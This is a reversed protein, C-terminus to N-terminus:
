VIKCQSLLKQFKSSLASAEFKDLYLSEQYNKFTISLYVKKEKTVIKAIFVDLNYLKDVDLKNNSFSNLITTLDIMQFVNKIVRYHKNETKCLFELSSFKVIIEDREKRTDKDKFIEISKDLKFIFDNFEYSYRM